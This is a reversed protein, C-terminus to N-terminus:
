MGHRKRSWAAGGRGTGQRQGSVNWVSEARIGRRAGWVLEEDSTRLVAEAGEIPAEGPLGLWGGSQRPRLHAGVEDDLGRAQGHEIGM